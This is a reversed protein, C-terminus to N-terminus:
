IIFLFNGFDGIPSFSFPNEGTIQDGFEGITPDPFKLSTFVEIGNLREIM